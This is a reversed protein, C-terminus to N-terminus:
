LLARLTTLGFWRTLEVLAWVAWIAQSVFAFLAVVFARGGAAQLKPVLIPLVVARVILVVHFGDFLSRASPALVVRLLGPGGRCVVVYGISIPNFRPYGPIFLSFTTFLDLSKRFGLTSRLLGLDGCIVNGCLLPVLYKKGIPSATGIAPGRDLLKCM